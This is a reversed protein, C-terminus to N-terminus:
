DEFYTGELAEIHEQIPSKKGKKGGTFMSGVVAALDTVFALRDVANQREAINLYTMFQLYTYDMIAHPSHGAKVM